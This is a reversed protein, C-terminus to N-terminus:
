KFIKRLKKLIKKLHKDNDYVNLWRGIPEEMTFLTQTIYSDTFFRSNCKELVEKFEGNSTMLTCLWTEGTHELLIYPHKFVTHMYVDGAKNEKPDREGSAVPLQQIWLLLRKKDFDGSSIQKLLEQKKM